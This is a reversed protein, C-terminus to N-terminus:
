CGNAEKVYFKRPVKMEWTRGTRRLVDVGVKYTGTKRLKPCYCDRDNLIETVELFAVDNERIVHNTRRSPPKCDELVKARYRVIGQRPTKTRLSNIRM